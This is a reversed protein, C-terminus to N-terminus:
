HKCPVVHIWITLTRGVLFLAGSRVVSNPSPLWSTIDSWVPWSPCLQRDWSRSPRRWQFLSFIWIFGWKIISAFSHLDWWYVYLYIITHRPSLIFFTVTSEKSFSYKMLLFFPMHKLLCIQEKVFSHCFLKGSFIDNLSQGQGM